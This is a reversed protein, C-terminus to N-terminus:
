RRNRRLGIGVRYSAFGFSPQRSLLGGNKWIMIESLGVTWQPILMEMKAKAEQDEAIRSLSRIAAGLFAIEHFDVPLQHIIDTDSAPGFPSTGFLFALSGDASPAPSLGLQWGQLQYANPLGAPIREVPSLLRDQTQWNTAQLLISPHTADSWVVRRIDRLVGNGAINQLDIWVPGRTGAPVGAVAFSEVRNENFDCKRNLDTIALEICDNLVANSPDPRQTPADGVQAGPVPVGTGGQPDIPPTIGLYVRRIRDRMAARNLAQAM